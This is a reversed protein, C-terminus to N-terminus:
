LGCGDAQALPGALGLMRRTEAARAELLEHHCEICRTRGEFNVLWTHWRRCPCRKTPQALLIHACDGDFRIHEILGLIEGEIISAGLTNM